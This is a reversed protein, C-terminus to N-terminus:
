CSSARHATSARGIELGGVGRRQWDERDQEQKKALDEQKVAVIQLAVATGAPASPDLKVLVRDGTALDGFHISDATSLDKQGPAIRKLAATSPVGVQHIEGADTKVTLTTGNIATITGLFRQATQAPALAATTLLAALLALHAISAPVRIRM